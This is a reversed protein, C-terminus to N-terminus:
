AQAEAHGAAALANRIETAQGALEGHDVEPAANAFDLHAMSDIPIVHVHVHPVEFGAIMLGVRAPSYLEQQTTAITHAVGMLHQNVSTPLDVWHDLEQRPVVLVHGRNIPNISLFAVAHEDRWVFHGPLDGNIIMTFVSPM